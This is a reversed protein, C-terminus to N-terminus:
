KPQNPLPMWHSFVEKFWQLNKNTYEEYDAERIMGFPYQKPFCLVREKALPLRDEVSIWENVSDAAKLDNKLREIEDLLQKNYVIMIKPIDVDFYMTYEQEGQETQFKQEKLWINAKIIEERSEMDNNTKPTLNSM